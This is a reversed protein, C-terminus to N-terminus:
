GWQSSNPEHPARVKALLECLNQLDAPQVHGLQKEHLETLGDAMSDLLRVGKETIEVLVSRRDADSRVRVIWTQKELRDLMRTIDPARSILKNAISLTPLPAGNSQLIRLVNYQQATIQWEAFFADELAKLRDYTRWISLYSEQQISDFRQKVRMSIVKLHELM